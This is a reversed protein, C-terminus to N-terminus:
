RSTRGNKGAPRGDDASEANEGDGVPASMRSFLEKVLSGDSSVETLSILTTRLEQALRAIATPGADTDMAHDMSRALGLAVQVLSSRVGTTLGGLRALDRIVAEEVAHSPAVPEGEEAVPGTPSLPADNDIETM